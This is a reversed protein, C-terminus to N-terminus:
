VRIITTKPSEFIPRLFSLRCCFIREGLAIVSINVGGGLLKTWDVHMPYSTDALGKRIWCCFASMSCPADAMNCVGFPGNEGQELAVGLPHQM